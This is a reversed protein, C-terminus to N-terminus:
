SAITLYYHVAKDDQSSLNTWFGEWVPRVGRSTDPKGNIISMNSDNKMFKGTATRRMHLMKKGWETNSKLNKMKGAHYVKCSNSEQGCLECIGNELRKIQSLKKVDDSKFTWPDHDFMMKGAKCDALKALTAYKTGKKTEYPM